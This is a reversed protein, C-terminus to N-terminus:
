RRRLGPMMRRLVGDKRIFHHFLAAGIHAFVMLAILIAGLKHFMFVTEATKVDKGVLAPLNVGLLTGRADYYSVGIWGLLPVALLLAYLGWHTLHAAAKQWPELTPEDPPAGKMLRYGLRAVIILLLLFGFTKHSTYLTNTLGDFNTAKGREVMYLGIPILLFVFGATIWHFQRAAGSYHQEGSSGPHQSM